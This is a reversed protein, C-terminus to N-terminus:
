PMVLKRANRMNGIMARSIYDIRLNVNKGPESVNMALADAEFAQSVGCEILCRKV